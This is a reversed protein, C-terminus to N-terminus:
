KPLVYAEGKINLKYDNNIDAGSIADDILEKDTEDPDRSLSGILLDNSYDYLAKLYFIRSFQQSTPTTYEIEVGIAPLEGTQKIVVSAGDKEANLIKASRVRNREGKITLICDFADIGKEDFGTRFALDSGNLRGYVGGDKLVGFWKAAAGKKKDSAFFVIRNKLFHEYEDIETQRPNPEAREEFEARAEKQTSTEETTKQPRKRVFPVARAHGFHRQIFPSAGYNSQNSGNQDTNAIRSYDFKAPQNMTSEKALPYTPKKYQGKHKLYNEAMLRRIFGSAQGMGGTMERLEKSQDAAEKRLAPADYKNLLSILHKHEEVFDKVPIVIDRKTPM